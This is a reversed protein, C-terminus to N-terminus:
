GGARVITPPKPLGPGAGLYSAFGESAYLRYDKPGGEFILAEIGSPGGILKLGDRGLVSLATAWADAVTANPAIVTVSPAFDVPRGTRPDVIHSFQKGGITAYRFYNGSTAVGAQELELTAFIEQNRFPDRIGVRWKGGDARRGFAFVDGGVDILGGRAGAKQMAEAARDIGYGKAIGGLDIGAQAIKKRAAQALLEFHRWGSADRAAAIQADTPMRNDKGARKWLEIVPRCTVDFAGQTQEALRRSVRLVELTSASLEVTEDPGASNLLSLETGTLWSSMHAEVDRLAAEAEELARSAQAQERGLAVAILNTETGMIGIPSAPYAQLREAQTRRQQGGQQWALLLLGGVVLVMLPWAVRRWRPSGPQPGSDIM